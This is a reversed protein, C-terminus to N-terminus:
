GQDSDPRELVVRTRECHRKFLGEMSSILRFADSSYPRPNEDMANRRSPDNSGDGVRGICPSKGCLQDFYAQLDKGLFDYSAVGSHAPVKVPGATVSVTTKGDATDFSVQPNDMRGHLWGSPEDSLRAKVTFRVGNPFAQKLACLSRDKTNPDSGWIKGDNNGDVVDSALCRIGLDEGIVHARNISDMCALGIQYPASGGTFREDCSTDRFTVPTISAFFSRATQKDNASNTGEIAVTVLYTDSSSGEIRSHPFSGFTLVTSPGGSPIRRTSSGVFDYNGRAPFLQSFVGAQDAKGEAHAVVSEICDLQNQSACMPLVARFTVPSGACRGAASDTCFQSVENSEPTVGIYSVNDRRDEAISFGHLGRVAALPSQWQEDAGSGDIVINSLASLSNAAGPAPLALSANVGNSTIAYGGALLATASQVDLRPSRDGVQVVYEFTM